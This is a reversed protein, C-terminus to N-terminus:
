LVRGESPSDDVLRQQHLGGSITCRMELRITCQMEKEIVEGITDADSDAESGPMGQIQPAM